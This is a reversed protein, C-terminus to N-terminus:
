SLDSTGTFTFAVASSAGQLSSAANAPMGVQICITESAGPNLQRGTSILSAATAGGLTSGAGPLATGGCTASPSTGTVTSAGTVTVTLAGSLVAPASTSTASYKMPATGNNKITLTGAVTNGPVMNNINLSTYGSVSDAGNVQLDITGATFTTGTVPVSDTWYAFTGTAGVAMVVGLSLAARTRANALVRGVSALNSTM